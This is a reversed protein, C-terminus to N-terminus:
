AKRDDPRKPEIALMRANRQKEGILKVRLVEVPDIQFKATDRSGKWLM